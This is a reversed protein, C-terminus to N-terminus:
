FRRGVVGTDDQVVEDFQEDGEIVFTGTAIHSSIMRYDVGPQSLDVNNIELTGGFEVGTSLFVVNETNFDGPLIVDLKITFSETMTPRGQIEFLAYEEGLGPELTGQLVTSTANLFNLRTNFGPSSSNRGGGTIVGSEQLLFDGHPILLGEKLDLVGSVEFGTGVIFNGEGTKTLRGIVQFTAEEGSFSSITGGGSQDWAGNHDVMVMAGDRLSLDLDGDAEVSGTIRWETGTLVKTDRGEFTTQSGIQTNFTGPGVITGGRWVFINDVLVSAPGSIAPIRSSDLILHQINVIQSDNTGVEITGTVVFPGGGQSNISQLVTTGAQVFFADSAIDIRGRLTGSTMALTGTEVLITGNSNFDGGSSTSVVISAEEEGTSKVTTGRNSWAGDFQVVVYADGQMEFFGATTNDFDAEIRLSTGPHAIITGRNHLDARLNVPNGTVHLEAGGTVEVLGPGEIDGGTLAFEDMINFETDVMLVAGPLLGGSGVTLSNGATALTQTGEGGGLVLTAVMVAGGLSVTYTGDEGIVAVDGEGPVEGLSWNGPVDWDGSGAAIWENTPTGGLTVTVEATDAAAGAGAIIMASGLGTAVAVGDQGVIVVDEDTSAWVFVTDIPAGTQDLASATFQADEGLGEFTKASPDVMVTGVYPDEPTGPDTPDDDDDSCGAILAISSVLFLFLLLHRNM